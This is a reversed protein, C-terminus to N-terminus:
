WDLTARWASTLEALPIEIPGNSDAIVFIQREQVRAAEAVNAHDDFLKTAQAPPLNIEVLYSAIPL